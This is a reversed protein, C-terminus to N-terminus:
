HSLFPLYNTLIKTHPQHVKAPVNVSCKVCTKKQKESINKSAGGKYSIVKTSDSQRDHSMDDSVFLYNKGSYM